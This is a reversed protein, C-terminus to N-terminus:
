HPSRAAKDIALAIRAYDAALEQQITQEQAFSLSVSAQGPPLAWLTAIRLHAPPHTDSVRPRRAALTRRRREKDSEMTAMQEARLHNWFSAGQHDFAHREAVFQYTARGTVITDLADAASAPSAVQAAIADALYEARQRTRLSLMDQATLVAAVIVRLPTLILPALQGALEGVPSTRQESSRQPSRDLMAHLRELTEISTGVVFGHRADGNAGHALEHGLVAIKQDGPLTDWLPLGLTMVRRRRWGVARYSVSWSDDTVVAHIPPAGAAAAVQDLVSFLMPADERYRVPRLKRLSGLRPRLEVATLLAVGALSVTVPNPMTAILWGGTAALGVSCGHVCAALTYSVVRALKRRPRASCTIQEYLWEARRAARLDARSGVPEPQLGELDTIGWVATSTM